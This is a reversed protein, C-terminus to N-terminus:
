PTRKSRAKVLVFVLGLLGIGGLIAPIYPKFAAQVNAVNVAKAAVAQKQAEIMALQAQKSAEIQAAEIQASTSQAGEAISQQLRNSAAVNYLSAGVNALAVLATGWDAGLAGLGDLAPTIPPVGGRSIIDRQIDLQVAPPLSRYIETLRKELLLRASEPLSNIWADAAAPDSVAAAPPAYAVEPHDATASLM